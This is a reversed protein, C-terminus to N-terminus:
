KNKSLILEWVFDLLKNVKFSKWNFRNNINDISINFKDEIDIQLSIIDLSDITIKSKENIDDNSTYEFLINILSKKVENIDQIM